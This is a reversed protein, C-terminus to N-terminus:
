ASTEEASTAVASEARGFHWAERKELWAAYAAGRRAWPPLQHAEAGAAADAETSEIPPEHRPTCGGAICDLFWASPPLTWLAAGALVVGAILFPMATTMLTETLPACRRAGVAGSGTAFTHPNTPGSTARRGIALMMAAHAARM